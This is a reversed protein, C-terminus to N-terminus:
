SVLMWLLYCCWVPIMDEVSEEPVAVPEMAHGVSVLVLQPHHSPHM